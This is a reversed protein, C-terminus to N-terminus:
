APFPGVGLDLAAIDLPPDFPRHEAIASYLRELRDVYAAFAWRQAVEQAARAGVQSYLAPDDVLRLLAAALAGPDDPPVGSATRSPSFPRSM